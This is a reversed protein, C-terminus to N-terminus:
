TYIRYLTHFDAYCYVVKTLKIKYILITFTYKYIHVM